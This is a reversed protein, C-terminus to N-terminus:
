ENVIYKAIKIIDERNASISMEGLNIDGSFVNSLAIYQTLKSKLNLHDGDATDLYVDGNCSNVVDLFSEINKIKKIKM